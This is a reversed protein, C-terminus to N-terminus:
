PHCRPVGLLTEPDVPSDNVLIEFYLHTGYTVGTRGVVGIRQGASLRTAGEALAPAVSGLHAYLATYGDHRVAVELGGLGRRHIGVVQGAAVSTVVGGAPAPLDVGRHFAAPAQPGIRRRPGFPSSICAHAVPALLVPAAARLSAPALAQGALLLTTLLLGRM